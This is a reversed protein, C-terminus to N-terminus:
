DYKILNREDRLMVGKGVVKFGLKEYFDILGDHLLAVFVLEKEELTRTKIVKDIMKSAYGQHRYNRKVFVDNLLLSQHSWHSYNEITSCCDNAYGITCYGILEDEKFLGWAYDNNDELWQGVWNGSLEDLIEVWEYDDVTLLRINIESDSKNLNTLEENQSEWMKKQKQLKEIIIMQKETDSKYEYKPLEYELTLIVHELEEMTLQCNILDQITKVQGFNFDQVTRPETYGDATKDVIELSICNLCDQAKHTMKDNNMEMSGKM